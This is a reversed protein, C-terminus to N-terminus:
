KGNKRIFDRQKPTADRRVVLVTQTTDVITRLIRHGARRAQSAYPEPLMAADVQDNDLMRMRVELDNIQPHYTDDPQLGAERKMRECLVSSADERALAITLGKLEKVKHPRLRGCVVLSWSEEVSCLVELHSAKGQRQYLSLRSRSITGGLANKGLLATDADLQSRYNVVKMTTDVILPRLHSLSDAISDTAYDEDTLPQTTPRHCGMVALLLIVFFPWLGNGHGKKHTIYSNSYM